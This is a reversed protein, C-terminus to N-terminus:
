LYYYMWIFTLVYANPQCLLALFMIAKHKRQFESFLSLGQQTIFLCSLFSNTRCYCKNLAFM